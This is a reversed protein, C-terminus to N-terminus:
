RVNRAITAGFHAKRFAFLSHRFAFPSPGKGKARSWKGAWLSGVALTAGAVSTGPGSDKRRIACLRISGVGEFYRFIGLVFYREM